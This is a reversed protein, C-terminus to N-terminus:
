DSFKPKLNNFGVVRERFAVRYRIKFNPCVLATGRIHFAITITGKSPSPCIVNFDPSECIIVFKAISSKFNHGRVLIVGPEYKSEGDREGEEEDEDDTKDVHSSVAVSRITKTILSGLRDLM